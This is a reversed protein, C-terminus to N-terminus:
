KILEKIRTEAKTLYEMNDQNENLSSVVKKKLDPEVIRDALQLLQDIKSTTAGERKASPEVGGMSWELLEKGTEETIMFPGRNAFLGTRDKSVNTFHNIEIDFVVGFEYDTGDRQNAKLGVKKPVTQGKANQETVYESKTRMTAIIHLQSQRMKDIFSNHFPTVKRWGSWGKNIKDILDMCGGDGEWEHSISDLILVDIDKLKEVYKILEIWRTPHYDPPFDIHKWETSTMPGAYYLASKNETDAVAIRSWDGTIGYAMRLASYTKGSDSPGDLAIKLKVKERQAKKVEFM